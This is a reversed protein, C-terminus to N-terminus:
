ALRAELEFVGLALATRDHDFGDFLVQHAPVPHGGRRGGDGLLRTATSVPRRRSTSHSETTVAKRSRGASGRPAEVNMGTIGCGNRNRNRSGTPATSFFAAGECGNRSRLRAVAM